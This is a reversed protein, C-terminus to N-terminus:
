LEPVNRKKKALDQLLSDIGGGKERKKDEDTRPTTKARLQRVNEQEGERLLLFKENAGEEV